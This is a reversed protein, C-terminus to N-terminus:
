RANDLFYQCYLFCPLTEKDTFYYFRYFIQYLFIIHYLIQYTMFMSISRSSVSTRRNMWVTHVNFLLDYKDRKRKAKNREREREKGEANRENGKRKATCEPETSYNLKLQLSAQVHTHTHKHQTHTKSFAHTHRHTHIHPLPAQLSTSCLQKLSEPYTSLSFFLSGPLSDTISQNKKKEQGHEKTM